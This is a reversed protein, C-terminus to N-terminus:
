HLIDLINTHTRKKIELNEIIVKVLKLQEKM